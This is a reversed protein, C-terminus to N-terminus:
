PKRRHPRPEIQADFIRSITEPCESEILGKISQDKLRGRHGTLENFWRGAATFLHLPGVIWHGSKALVCLPEGDPILQCLEQERRAQATNTRPM